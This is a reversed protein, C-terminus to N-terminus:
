IAQLGKYVTAQIGKKSFLEEIKGIYYREDMM